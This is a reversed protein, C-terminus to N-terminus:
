RSLVHGHHQGFAALGGLCDRRRKLLRRGLHVDDHGYSGLRVEREFVPRQCADFLSFAFRRGALCM